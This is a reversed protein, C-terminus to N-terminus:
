NASAFRPFVTFVLTQHCQLCHRNATSKCKDSVRRVNTQCKVWWLCPFGRFSYGGIFYLFPCSPLSPNTDTGVWASGGSFMREASERRPRIARIQLSIAWSSSAPTMAARSSSSSRSAVVSAHRRASCRSRCPRRGALLVTWWGKTIGSFVESDYTKVGCCSASVSLCLRVFIATRNNNPLRHRTYDNTAPGHRTPRQRM